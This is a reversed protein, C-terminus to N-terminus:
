ESIGGGSVNQIERIIVLICYVGAFVCGLPVSIQVSWMPVRMVPSESSGVKLIWHRSLVAILINIGAVLVLGLVDVATRYPEGLKDIVYTIAIHDRKGIAIAAGLATTYIFLYEMLENGGVISSNFVYRMLVLLITLLIIVGFFATVITELIRTLTKEIGAM